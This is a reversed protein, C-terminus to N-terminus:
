EDEVELRAGCSPCFRFYKCGVIHGITYKCESCVATNLGGDHTIIWKGKKQKSQGNYIAEAIVKVDEDRICYGHGLYSRIRNNVKEPIDIVIQM